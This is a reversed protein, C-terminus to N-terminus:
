LSAPYLAGLIDRQSAVNPLLWEVIATLGHLAACWLLSKNRMRIRTRADFDYVKVWNQFPFNGLVFLDKMKQIIVTDLNTRNLHKPWYKAAYRILSQQYTELIVQGYHGTPHSERSYFLYTLCCQGVFSDGFSPDMVIKSNVTRSKELVYTKVSAHAFEVTNDSMRIVLSSCIKLVDTSYSLKADSDFIKENTDFQVIIALDNMHLPQEAFALWLLLKVACSADAPSIRSLIQDYTGELTEPLSELIYKLTKKRRTCKKLEDLQCAVWRFRNTTVMVM